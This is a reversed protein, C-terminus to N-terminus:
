TSAACHRTVPGVSAADAFGSANLLAPARAGVTVADPRACPRAPRLRVRTRTVAIVASRTLIRVDHGECRARVAADLRAPLGPVLSAGAEVVTIGLGERNRYRRLIEGLAEIGALGGGVIVVSRKGPARALTSLRRGIATCDEVNRFPLAYRDAGRVGFTEGMAGVAVVCIDFGFPRGAATTLHGAAADITAVEARIFRHGARTVLRRRPLRLDAPRKVGSLLEHIGPLWEFTASRDFVTVAYERGLHQAASLGAFNGGVIAVRPRSPLARAPRM